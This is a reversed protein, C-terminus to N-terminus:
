TMENLHFGAGKESGEFRPALIGKSCEFVERWADRDVEVGETALRSIRDGVTEPQFVNTFADEHDDVFERIIRGVDGSYRRHSPDVCVVLFGPTWDSSGGRYPAVSRKVLQQFLRADATGYNEGVHGKFFARALPYHQQHHLGDDVFEMIEGYSEAPADLNADAVLPRPQAQTGLITTSSGTGTTALVVALYGREAARYALSGLTPHSPDNECTTARGIGVGQHSAQSCAFDLTQTGPVIGPQGDGDVVSVLESRDSLTLRDTSLKDLDDLLSQLTEFGTGRYAETWWISEAKDRAVGHEFGSAVFCRQSLTLVERVSVRM